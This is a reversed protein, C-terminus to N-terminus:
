TRPTPHPEPNRSGPNGTPLTVAVPYFVLLGHQPHQIRIAAHPGAPTGDPPEDCGCDIIDTRM